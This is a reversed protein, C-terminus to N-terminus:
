FKHAAHAGLLFEFQLWVSHDVGFDERDDYNYQLRIKSFESPYWTLSPSIRWREGRLPDRGLAEGDLALSMEEYDGRVSDLYDFRLGAVWGKRFGWLLQTYFGYDTLTERSLVAPLGTDVDEVEGDSLAADGDEDWDFAGADYQRLMAETQWMVFPFGGHARPSKWKWTADVGYIQTCTDGGQGSSNPGLAASAGLLLVQNATLDFSTALRASYLLDALGDVGRDNDPHRYALPVSEEEEEEGHGHGSSRFSSATEGHSNQVGFMLESYFPTPVLWSLRAGPNRLGDPGFFRGNVLPVDVFSWAHPHVPNHRGFETFYQGAKLQLNAPLSISELYAEELEVQTEGGSDLFLIVNAQGRFYPDVAGDFVLEVNQVTFGNQSPDHGGLQLSEVDDATTGGASFLADLSVNMYSGGASFIRVPDAPSRLAPQAGGAIRDSGPLLPAPAPATVMAGMNSANQTQLKEVRDQLAEIVRRQESTIREFNEKLEQFQRKLQEVENTEQGSVGCVSFGFICVAVANRLFQKKM